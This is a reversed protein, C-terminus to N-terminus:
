LIMKRGVLISTNEWQRMLEVSAFGAAQMLRTETEATFPTDFHYFAGEPVGQTRRIEENAAMLEQQREPTSVTYDGMVFLGGPKLAAFIKKYLGLKKEESFHHLSYTSLVADFSGGFDVDFYSGCILKMHKGPFKAALKELMEASLDVGTVALGPLREYLRTLELGTGCGLDLLSSVPAEFCDAVAEYFEELGLDDLMHSDYSDARAAFFAAMEEIPRQLRYYRFPLVETQGNDLIEITKVYRFGAKEAVGRSAYNEPQITAIMHDYGYGDFAIKAVASVAETMYGKRTHSADIWYALGIEKEGLKDFCGIAIMGILKGSNKLTIAWSIFQELPDDIEYNKLVWEIWGKAHKDYERWDPLWYEIHEQGALLILAEADSPDWARLLLRPTEINNFRLSM